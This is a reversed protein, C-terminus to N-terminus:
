MDCDQAAREAYSGASMAFIAYFTARAYVLSWTRSGCLVSYNGPGFPKKKKEGPHKRHEALSIYRHHSFVAATSTTPNTHIPGSRNTVIAELANRGHRIPSFWTMDGCRPNDVRDRSASESPETHRPFFFEKRDSFCSVGNACVRVSGETLSSDPPTRPSNPLYPIRTHDLRSTETRPIHITRTTCPIWVSLAKTPKHPPSLPSSLTLQAGAGGRVREGTSFLVKKM